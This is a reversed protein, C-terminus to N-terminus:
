ILWGQGEEFSEALIKAALPAKAAAKKAIRSRRILLMKAKDTLRSNADKSSKAMEYRISKTLAKWDDAEQVNLRIAHPHYVYDVLRGSAVADALTIPPPVIPGFYDFIRVTGDPDGYRQPTASLGLRAGTDISLCQSNFPSGIQHVEDAIIMLHDGQWLAQRFTETAATQMTALIFRGAVSSPSSIRRLKGLEKWRDNGGGALVVAEEPFEEKVEKTWQKLLLDSPLLILVPLGSEIHTRAAELATFTKGSGTAHEFVGKRGQAIWADIATRQHPMLTRKEPDPPNQWKDEAEREADEITAAAKLYLKSLAAEPFPLTLVDTTTGSWLKDFNLLHRAARMRDGDDRWSCFVEVSEFNGHAHWGSWSENASGIFSVTSGYADTFIGIKEHYLGHAPPRVAIKVEMRGTAILTALVKVRWESKSDALLMDIEAEVREAALKERTAYGSAIAEQDEVTLEPSCVLFITGGKKAFALVAPGVISYISSRFYGVARRYQEAAALCPAYFQSIPDSNGTRYEVALDISALGFIADPDRYLIAAVEIPSPM